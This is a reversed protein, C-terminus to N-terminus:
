LNRFKYKILVMIGHLGDQFRTKKGERFTRPCYHVPVEQISYGKKLIKATVEECFEFGESQLNLNQLIGKRFVKYGNTIDTLSSKYLINALWTLLKGGLEFFFYHPSKTKNLNRSGYVVDAKGDLLPKLLVAYDEPSLELDADQIILFDGRACDLATKIAAGKGRNRQHRIIKCRDKMQDLIRETGDTSGDDVIIIEKKIQLKALDVGEVRKVIESITDKENYVPIIISLTKEGSFAM